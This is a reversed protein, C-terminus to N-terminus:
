NTLFNFDIICRRKPRAKTDFIYKQNFKIKLSDNKIKSVRLKVGQLDAILSIKKNTSKELQKGVNASMSIFTDCINLFLKRLLKEFEVKSWPSHFFTDADIWVCWDKSKECADLVAYVKNAFRVANWLFSGKLADKGGKTKLEAPRRVGGPIEQLEGNAVPDNKHRQKFKVLEPNVEEINIYKIKKHNFDPKDGEYYAHLMVDEPWFDIHSQLMRKAYANWRNPPFTTIVTLTKM